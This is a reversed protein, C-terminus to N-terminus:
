AIYKSHLAAMLNTLRPLRYTSHMEAGIICAWALPGVWGNTTGGTYLNGIYWRSLSDVEPVDTHTFSVLQTGTNKFQRSVLTSHDLSVAYVVAEGAGLNANGGFGSNSGTDNDASFIMGGAGADDRYFRIEELISPTASYMNLMYSAVGSAHRTADLAGVFIFTFSETVNGADLAMDGDDDTFNIAPYGNFDAHSEVLQVSPRSVRIWNGTAQDRGVLAPGRMLAPDILSMLPTDTDLDSLAINVPDSMDIGLLDRSASGGPVSYYNGLM